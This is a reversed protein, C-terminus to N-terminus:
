CMPQGCMCSFLVPVGYGNGNEVERNEVGDSAIRPSSQPPAVRGNVFLSNTEAEPQCLAIEDPGYITPSQNMGHENATSRREVALFHGLSQTNNVSVADTSDRSCLSFFWTKSKYSKKHRLNEPKRGRISRKSLELINHIGILSGLTISRDHFFSGTSQFLIMIITLM